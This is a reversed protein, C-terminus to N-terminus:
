IDLHIIFIRRFVTTTENYILLEKTFLNLCFLEMPKNKDIKKRIYVLLFITFNYKMNIINQM